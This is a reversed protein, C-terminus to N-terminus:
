PTQRRAGAAVDFLHAGKINGRHRGWHPHSRPDRQRHIPRTIQRYNENLNPARANQFVPVIQAYFKAVM